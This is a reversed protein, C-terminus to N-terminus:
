SGINTIQVRRNRPEDVQDPTQVLLKTAGMGVPEMRTGPVQYKNQIYAVVVEARQDSLSKNYDRTGITDTHGEIRFRYASLAESALATGLKDLVEIAQPTLEASGLAFNVTLSITPAAPEPSAKTPKVPTVAAHANPAKM